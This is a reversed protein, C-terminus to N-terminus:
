AVFERPWDLVILGVYETKKSTHGQAVVARSETELTMM